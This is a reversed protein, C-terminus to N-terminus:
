GALRAAPAAQPQRDHLPDDLARTARDSEVLGLRAPHTRDDGQRQERLCAGAAVLGRHLALLAQRRDVATDTAAERLTMGRLAVRELLAWSAPDVETLTEPRDIPAIRELRDRRAAARTLRVLTAPDRTSRAATGVAAAATSESGTIRHALRYSAVTADELSM